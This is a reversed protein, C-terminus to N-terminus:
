CTLSQLTALDQKHRIIYYALLTFQRCSAAAQVADSQKIRVGSRKQLCIQALSGGSAAVVEHDPEGTHDGDTRSAFPYSCLRM